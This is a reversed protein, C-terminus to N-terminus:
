PDLKEGRALLRVVRVPEEKEKAAALVSIPPKRPGGGSMPRKGGRKNALIVPVVPSAPTDSGRRALVRPSVSLATDADSANPDFLKGRPRPVTVPATILEPTLPREPVVIAGTAPVKGVSAKVPLLRLGLRPAWSRTLAGDARVDYRGASDVDTTPSPDVVAVCVSGRAANQTAEWSACCLTRRLWEPPPLADDDDATLLVDDWLVFADDRQVRLRTNAGVFSELLRSAGRARQALISTGKKLMDLTNLM